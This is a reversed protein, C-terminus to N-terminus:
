KKLKFNSDLIYICKLVGFLPDSFYVCRNEDGAPIIINDDNKMKEYCIETVDITNELYGYFIKM